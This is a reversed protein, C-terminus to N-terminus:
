KSKSYLDFVYQFLHSFNRSIKNVCILTVDTKWFHGQFHVTSGKIVRSMGKFKGMQSTHSSQSENICKENWSGNVNTENM